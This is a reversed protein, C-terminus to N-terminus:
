RFDRKRGANTSPKNANDDSPANTVSGAEAESQTAPTDDNQALTNLPGFGVCSIAILRALWIKKWIIKKM